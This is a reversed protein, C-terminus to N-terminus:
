SFLKRIWLIDKFSGGAASKKEIKKKEPAAPHMLLWLVVKEWEARCKKSYNDRRKLASSYSLQSFVVAMSYPGQIILWGCKLECGVLFSFFPSHIRNHLLRQSSDKTEKPKLRCNVAGLMSDGGKRERKRLGPIWVCTEKRKLTTHIGLFLSLFVLQHELLYYIEKM